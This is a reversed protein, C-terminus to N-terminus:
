TRRKRGAWFAGLALLSLTAPEPITATAYKLDWNTVDSYAIHVTGMADVAISNSRGVNGSSDVIETTWMQGNWYAFKLSENLQDYYSIYPNGNDDVTISTTVEAFISDVTQFTWASGDWLGYGLCGDNGLFSVHLNGKKDYCASPYSQTFQHTSECNWDETNFYAHALEIGRGYIISANGFDDLALATRSGSINTVDLTQTHWVNNEHYAYMLYYPSTRTRYSIHPENSHDLALSTDWGVMGHADITETSWVANRNNAYKLSGNSLYSIHVSDDGGLAISPYWGTDFSNDITQHIWGSDSLYSYKLTGNLGEYHAIHPKGNSDLDLSVHVGVRGEYDITQINWDYAYSTPMCALLSLILVLQRISKM